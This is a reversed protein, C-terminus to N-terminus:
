PWWLYILGKSESLWEYNMMFDKEMHLQQVALGCSMNLSSRKRAWNVTMMPIQSKSWTVLKMLLRITMAQYLGRHWRTKILNAMKTRTTSRLTKKTQLRTKRMQQQSQLVFMDWNYIVCICRLIYACSMRTKSMWHHSYIYKKYWM